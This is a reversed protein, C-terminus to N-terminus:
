SYKKQFRSPNAKGLSCIDDVKNNYCYMPYTQYSRELRIGWERVSVFRREKRDDIQSQFLTSTFADDAADRCENLDESFPHIPCWMYDDFSIMSM